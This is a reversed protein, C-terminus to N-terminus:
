MWEPAEAMALRGYELTHSWAEAVVSAAARRVVAQRNCGLERAERDVRDGLEGSLTYHCATRLRPSPKWLRVPLGEAVLGRAVVLTLKRCADEWEDDTLKGTARAELARCYRCALLLSLRFRRELLAQEGLSTSFSAVRQWLWPSPVVQLEEGMLRSYVLRSPRGHGVLLELTRAISSDMRVFLKEGTPRVFSPREVEEECLQAFVAEFVAKLLAPKCIKTDCDEQDTLTLPLRTGEIKQGARSVALRSVAAAAAMVLRMAIEIVSQKKTKTLAMEILEKREICTGLVMVIIYPLGSGHRAVSTAAAM